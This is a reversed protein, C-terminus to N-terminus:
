NEKKYDIILKGNMHDIEHQIARAMLGNFKQTRNIGLNDKYKITIGSPRKIEVEEGPISLCGEIDGIKEDCEDIIEPNIIILGNYFVVIKKHIGIQCAGIGVGDPHKKLEKFLRRILKRQKSILKVEQSKKRLRDDPYIIISM